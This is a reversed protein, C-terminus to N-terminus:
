PMNDFRVSHLGVFGRLPFSGTLSMTMFLANQSLSPTVGGVPSSASMSSSVGRYDVYHHHQYQHNHSDSGHGPAHVHSLQLAHPFGASAGGQTKWGGAELPQHRAGGGGLDDANNMSVHFSGDFKLQCASRFSPPNGHQQHHHHHQGHKLSFLSFRSLANKRQAAALYDQRFGHLLPPGCDDWAHGHPAAHFDSAFPTHPPRQPYGSAPAPVFPADTDHTPPYRHHASAAADEVKVCAPEGPMAHAFVCAPKMVDYDSFHDVLLAAAAPGSAYGPLSTSSTAATVESNALDMSYKVFEPTLFDGGGGGGGREGATAGQQSAPSAGQPSSGCQTQVCPM